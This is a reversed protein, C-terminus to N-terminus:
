VITGVKTRGYAIAERPQVQTRYDPRVLALRTSHWTLYIEFPLEKVQKSVTLLKTKDEVLSSHVWTSGTTVFSLGVWQWYHMNTEVIVDGPESLKRM